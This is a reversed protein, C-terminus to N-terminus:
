AKKIKNLYKHALHLPIPMKYNEHILKSVIEVSKELDIGFGPIVYIPNAFEKTRIAKGRVVNEFMIKDEDLRGYLLDKVVGICPKNLMFGVYSALGVKRPNIFGNGKVILLDPKNELNRYSELIVPGERFAVLSPSYNLVEDGSVEKMEIEEGKDLDWVVAVCHYKKEIYTIDFAVITKVVSFTNELKIGKLIKKEVEKLDQFNVGIKM